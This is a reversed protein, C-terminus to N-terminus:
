QGGPSALAPRGRQDKVLQEGLARDRGMARAADLATGYCRCTAGEAKRGTINEAHFVSLAGLMPAHAVYCTNEGLQASVVRLARNPSFMRGVMAVKADIWEGAETM